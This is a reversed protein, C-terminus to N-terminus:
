EGRITVNNVAKLLIEKYENLENDSPCELGLNNEIEKYKQLYVQHVGKLYVSMTEIIKTSIIPKCCTVRIEANEKMSKIIAISKKLKEEANDYKYGLISQYLYPVTKFDLALYDPNCLKIIEPNLGNTDIGIKIEYKRLKKVLDLLKSGHITPEGGSIKVATVIDKRYELFDEIATYPITGKEKKIFEKNHCYKCSLNCGSTFLTTCIESPYDVYSTKQWGVLISNM